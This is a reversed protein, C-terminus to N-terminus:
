VEYLSSFNDTRGADSAFGVAVPDFPDVEDEALSAVLRCYEPFAAGFYEKLKIMESYFTACPSAQSMKVLEQIDANASVVSLM